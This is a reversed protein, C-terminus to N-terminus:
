RYGHSDPEDTDCRCQLARLAACHGREIGEHEEHGEHILEELAGMVVPAIGKGISNTEEYHKGPSFPNLPYKFDEAPLIYGLEDNALGIIGATGAGAEKLWAKLRLGLRPLLEGPVAALWLDGIKVLNVESTVYGKQDRMDPLLKRRFALKFLINTLRASVQKRRMSLSGDEQLPAKELAKLGEESLRTGMAEAEEFSHELVNPTMM